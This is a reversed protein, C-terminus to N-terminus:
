SAEAAAQAESKPIRRQVFTRPHGDMDNKEPDTRRRYLMRLCQEAYAEAWDKGHEDMAAALRSTQRAAAYWDFDLCAMRFLFEARRAGRQSGRAMGGLHWRMPYSKMVDKDDIEFLNLFRRHWDPAGGADTDRVHIRGSGMEAQWESRFWHLLRPLDRPETM